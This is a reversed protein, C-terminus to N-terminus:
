FELQPSNGTKYEIRFDPTHVTPPEKRTHWHNREFTGTHSRGFTGTHSRRFTGTYSRGFTHRSDRLWSYPGPQLRSLALAAALPKKGFQITERLNAWLHVSAVFKRHIPIYIYLLYANVHNYLLRFMVNPPINLSLDKCIQNKISIIYYCVMANTNFSASKIKTIWAILCFGL